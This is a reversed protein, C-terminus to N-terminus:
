IYLQIYEIITLEPLLINQAIGCFNGIIFGIGLIIFLTSFGIGLNLLIDDTYKDYKESKSWKIFWKISFFGLILIGIWVLIQVVATINKFTIFRSALEQIYPMVNENTWDITM